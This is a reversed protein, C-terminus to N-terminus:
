TQTYPLQEHVQEIEPKITSKGFFLSARSFRTEDEEVMVACWCTRPRVLRFTISM